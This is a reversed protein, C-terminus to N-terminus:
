LFETLLDWRLKDGVHLLHPRYLEFLPWVVVAQAGDEFVQEVAATKFIVVVKVPHLLLSTVSEARRAAVQLRAALGLVRRWCLRFDGLLSGVLRARLLLVRLKSVNDLNIRQLLM